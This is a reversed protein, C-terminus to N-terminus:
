ADTAEEWDSFDEAPWVEAALLAGAQGLRRDEASSILDTDPLFEVLSRHSEARRHVVRARVRVTAQMRAAAKALRDSLMAAGVATIYINCSKASGTVRVVDGRVYERAARLEYQPPPDRLVRVRSLNDGTAALVYGCPRAQNQVGALLRRLAEIAPRDLDLEYAKLHGAADTTLRGGLGSLEGSSHRGAPEAAKPRRYNRPSQANRATSGVAQTPKM